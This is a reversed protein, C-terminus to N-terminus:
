CHKNAGISAKISFLWADFLANYRIDAKIKAEINARTTPSAPYYVEQGKPTDFIFINISDLYDRIEDSLKWNKEQRAKEREEIIDDINKEEKM